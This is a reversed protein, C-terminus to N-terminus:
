LKQIADLLKLRHGVKKIGIDILDQKQVNKTLDSVNGFGNLVFIDYYESLNISELWCKLSINDVDFEDSLGEKEDNEGLTDCINVSFKKGIMHMRKKELCEMKNMWSDKFQTMIQVAKSKLYQKKIYNILIVNPDFCSIYVAKTIWKFPNNNEWENNHILLMGRYKIIACINNHKPEMKANSYNLSGVVDLSVNKYNIKRKFRASMYYMDRATLGFFKLVGPDAKTYMFQHSTDFTKIVKTETKNNWMYKNDNNTGCELYDYYDDVSHYKIVKDFWMLSRLYCYGNKQMKYWSHIQNKSDFEGQTWLKDNKTIDSQFYMAHHIMTQILNNEHETDIYSNTIPNNKHSSPNLKNSNFNQRKYHQNAETIFNVQTNEPEAEGEKNELTDLAAM